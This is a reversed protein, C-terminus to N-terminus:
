IHILSLDDLYEGWAHTPFAASPIETGLADWVRSLELVIAETIDYYFTGERTDIRTPDNAELGANADADLRLRISDATEQFLPIFDAM